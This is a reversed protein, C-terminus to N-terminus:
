DPLSVIKTGECKLPHGASAGNMVTNLNVRLPEEEKRQRRLNLKKDKSGHM